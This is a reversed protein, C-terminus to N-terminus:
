VWSKPLNYKCTTFGSQKVLLIINIILNIIISGWLVFIKMNLSKLHKVEGVLHYFLLIIVIINTKYKKSVRSPKMNFSGDDSVPTSNIEYLVIFNLIVVIIYWHKFSEFVSESTVSLFFGLMLNLFLVIYKIINFLTVYNYTYKSITFLPIGSYRMPTKIYNYTTFVIILVWSIWKINPSNFIDM